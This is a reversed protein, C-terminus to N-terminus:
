TVGQEYAHILIDIYLIVGNKNLSKRLLSYLLFKEEFISMLGVYQVDRM